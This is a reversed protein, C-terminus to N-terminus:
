MICLSRMICAVSVHALTQSRCIHTGVTIHCINLPRPPPTILPDCSLSLCMFLNCVCAPLSSSMLHSILCVCLCVLLYVLLFISRSFLSVSVCLSHLSLSSCYNCLFLSVSLFHPHTAPCVSHSM